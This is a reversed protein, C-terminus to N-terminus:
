RPDENVCEKVGNHHSQYGIAKNRFEIQGISEWHKIAPVHIEPSHPIQLNTCCNDQYHDYVSHHRVQDLYNYVLVTNQLPKLVPIPSFVHVNCLLDKLFLIFCNIFARFKHDFNM